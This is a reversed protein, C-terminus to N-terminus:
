VGCSAGGGSKQPKVKELVKQYGLASSYNIGLVEKPDVKDWSIGLEDFYKAIIIYTDPFWYSNVKLAIEYMEKEGVGQSAMLELLGLMAMGHNCDPFYTSNGCCPRYINKAVEEIRKQQIYTLTIFGYNSYHDMIDGKALSWGGTSAFRDAGGYQPDKMPGEELIINKNALGFAWFLNLLFGSNENNIKIEKKNSGYLLEKEEENLGGRQTYLDEFKEQDIVGSDIMQKGLDGWAIPLVVGDPSLVEKELALYTKELDSVTNTEQSNDVMDLKGFGGSMGIIILVAILIGASLLYEKKNKNQTENEM